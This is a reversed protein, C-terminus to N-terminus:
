ASPTYGGEISQGGQDVPRLAHDVLMNVNQEHAARDEDYWEQNIAMLYSRMAKDGRGTVKSVKSNLDSNEQHLDNAGLSPVDAPDVFTYGAQLAQEVRGDQDNIWHVHKGAEKFKRMDAESLQLKTRHGGMPVRAKKDVARRRTKLQDSM